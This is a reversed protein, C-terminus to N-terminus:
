AIEVPRSTGHEADSRAALGTSLLRDVNKTVDTDGFDTNGRLVQDLFSGEDDVRSLSM